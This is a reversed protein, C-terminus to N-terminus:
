FLIMNVYNLPLNHKLLLTHLINQQIKIENYM